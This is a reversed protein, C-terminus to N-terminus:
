PVVTYLFHNLKAVYLFSLIVTIYVLLQKRSIYICLMVTPMEPTIPHYVFKDPFGLSIEMGLALDKDEIDITAALAGVMM